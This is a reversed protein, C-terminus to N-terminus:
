QQNSGHGSEMVWRITDIMYTLWHNTATDFRMRPTPFNYSIKFFFFNLVVGTLNM